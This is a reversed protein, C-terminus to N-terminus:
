DSSSRPPRPWPPRSSTSRRPSTTTSSRSLPRVVPAPPRGRAGGAFLQPPSREGESAAARPAGASAALPSVPAALGEPRLRPRGRREPRRASLAQRPHERGEDDGRADVRQDIRHNRKRGRDGDTADRGREGDPPGAGDDPREPKQSGKDRRHHEVCGAVERRHRDEAEGSRARHGHDHAASSRARAPRRPRRLGGTPLM